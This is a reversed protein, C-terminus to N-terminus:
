APEHKFVSAPRTRPAPKWGRIQDLVSPRRRWNPDRGAHVLVDAVHQWESNARAAPWDIVDAIRVACTALMRAVLGHHLPPETRVRGGRRAIDLNYRHAILGVLVSSIMSAHVMANVAAPRRADIEDLRHSSKDLKNNSEIEWRVRYIDAVQRPGVTRPLNTLYFCYGRKPHHVGCLRMRIEDAGVTVDADIANGLVLRDDDLLLDLDTGPTFTRSIDGRVVRRVKPKWNEKLRLVIRVDHRQCARLRELSAYGLDVLLGYGRWSEDIVLHPSDHERAPSLHYGVVTGCGVSLTKHVKLAAYDGTGPYVSKLKDHLKVTTSDVILWDQVGGLIGPLDREQQRAYDRVLKSLQELADELPPGFWDYFSGRAVKPAKAEFYARMVDAQRGGSPSSASLLMARLFRIVDLKRTRQKFGTAEAVQGLVSEPLVTTIIERLVDGTM